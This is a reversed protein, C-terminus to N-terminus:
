YLHQINMFSKKEGIVDFEPQCNTLWKKKRKVINLFKNEKADVNLLKRRLTFRKKKCLM